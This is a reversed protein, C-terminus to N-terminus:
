VQAGVSFTFSPATGSLTYAARYFNRVTQNVSVNAVSAAGPFLTLTASGTATIAPFSANPVDMWTGSIEDLVQLKVALSPTTGSVASCNLFLTLGNALPPPPIPGSFGTVTYVAPPVVIDSGHYVDVRAGAVPASAFTVTGETQSVLPTLVGAVKAFKNLTSAPSRYTLLVGGSVESYIKM